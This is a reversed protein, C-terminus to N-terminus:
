QMPHSDNATLKFKPELVSPTEPMKFEDIHMHFKLNWACVSTADEIINKSKFQAIKIEM